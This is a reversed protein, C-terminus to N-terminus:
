IMIGTSDVVRQPYSSYHELRLIQNFDGAVVWPTDVMVSTHNIEVLENWLMQREGATNFGYVFTVTLNINEALIFIGCTVAQETTKYIFVSVLPDWVVVIRGTGQIGYNGFFKWGVPIANIVTSINSSQIHTEIFAGFLPRHLNIWNKVMTHRRENNLGRVNWAFFMSM